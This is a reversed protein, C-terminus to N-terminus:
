RFHHQRENTKSEVIIRRKFRLLEGIPSVLDNRLLPFSNLIADRPVLLCLEMWESADTSISIFANPRARGLPIIGDESEQLYTWTKSDCKTTWTTKRRFDRARSRVFSRKKRGLATKM